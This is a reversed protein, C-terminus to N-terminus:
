INEEEMTPFEILNDQLLNNTNRSNRNWYGFILATLALASIQSVMADFEFVPQMPSVVCLALLSATIFSNLSDIFLSREIYRKSWEIWIPAVSATIILLLVELLASATPEKNIIEIM